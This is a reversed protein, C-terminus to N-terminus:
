RGATQPGRLAEDFAAAFEQSGQTKMSIDMRRDLEALLGAGTLGIVMKNVYYARRTFANTVPAKSGLPLMLEIGTLPGSLNMIEMQAGTLNDRDYRAAFDKIEKLKMAQLMPGIDADINLAHMGRGQMTKAYAQHRSWKYPVKKANAYMHRLAVIKAQLAHRRADSIGSWKSKTVLRNIFTRGHKSLVNITNADLLQAYGLASSIPRGSKRVPHIGAQMDYTGIGGTELAYVRVVQHKSLGLALAEEAYRRKFETESVREPVFNYVSKSAALYDAVTPLETAKSPSQKDQAASFARYKRALGEGLEPGSYVPPFTMVYDDATYPIKAARKKKRHNRKREVKDWYVDLQDNYEARAQRWARFNAVEDDSLSALFEITSMANAAPSAAVLLLLTLALAQALRGITLKPLLNM